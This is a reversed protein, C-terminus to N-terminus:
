GNVETLIFESRETTGYGRQFDFFLYFLLIIIFFVDKLLIFRFILRVNERQSKGSEQKERVGWAWERLSVRLGDDDSANDRVGLASDQMAVSLGDHDGHCEGWGRTKTLKTPERSRGKNSVGGEPWQWQRQVLKRLKRTAMGNAHFCDKSTKTSAM